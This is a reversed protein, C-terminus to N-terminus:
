MKYLVMKLFHASDIFLHTDQLGQYLVTRVSSGLLASNNRFYTSNVTVNVGYRLQALIVTMGGGGGIRYGLDDLYRSTGVELYTRYGFSCELNNVFTCSDIDLTYRQDDYSSRYDHTFDHYLFVAGGGFRESSSRLTRRLNAISTTTESISSINDCEGQPVGNSILNVNNLRSSGIVNIGLLGLGEVNFITM